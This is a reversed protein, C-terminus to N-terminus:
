GAHRCHAEDCVLTARPTANVKIESNNQTKKVVGKKDGVTGEIKEVVNRSIQDGAHNEVAHKRV